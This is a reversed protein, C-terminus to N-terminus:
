GGISLEIRNECAVTLLGLPKNEGPMCDGAWGRDAIPGAEVDNKEESGTADKDGFATGVVVTKANIREAMRGTPM